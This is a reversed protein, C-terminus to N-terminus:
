MLMFNVFSSFGDKETFSKCSKGGDKDPGRRFGGDREERNAGLSMVLELALIIRTTDTETESAHADRTESAALTRKVDRNIANRAPSTSKRGMPRRPCRRLLDM